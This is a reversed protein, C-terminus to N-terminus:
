AAPAPAPIGVATELAAVKPTMVGVEGSLDTESQAAAATLSAIQDNLPAVAAAVATATDTSVAALVADLRPGLAKLDDLASMIKQQGEVIAALQKFVDSLDPPRHGEPRQHGDDSDDTLDFPHDFDVFPIPHDPM